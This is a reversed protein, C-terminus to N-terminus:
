RGPSWSTGGTTATKWGLRVPDNPPITGRKLLEAIHAPRLIGCTGKNGPIFRVETVGQKLRARKMCVMALEGGKCVPQGSKDVGIQGAKAEAVARGVRYFTHEEATVKADDVEVLVTDCQDPMSIYVCVQGEEPRGANTGSPLTRIDEAKKCGDCPYTAAAQQAVAPCAFLMLWVVIGLVKKM